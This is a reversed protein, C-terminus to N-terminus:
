GGSGPREWLVAGRGDPLRFRAIPRFRLRRAAREVNARTPKLFSNPLPDATLLFDSGRARLWTGYAPVVDQGAGPLLWDIRMLRRNALVAALELRTNNLFGDGTVVALRPDREGRAAARAAVLRVIRDALPPWAKASAPLRAPPVGVRDGHEAVEVYLPDRGDLVTVEGLLPLHARVPASLSHSVGNKVLVNLVCVAALLAALGIRLGGPRVRAAAGAALALLSPIWPLAFATGKNTTSTLVLYGGLVLCSPLVWDSGLAARVWALRTGSARRHLLAVAAAAGAVLCLVAAAALPLGLYDTVLTAEKTWYGLTAVGHETGFRTASEGYGAGTLYGTVTSWNPAWWLAAVVVALGGAAVLNRARLARGAPDAVLVVVLGAAIAPVYALTMTRALLALGILAGGALAWRVDRLRGSRLLAWVAATLLAAAPVSFHFMRAYDTVVPATGVCIAALAAWGPPALRRALGYSALMLGVFWPIAVLQAVDISRGFVALLPVASLPVLPPQTGYTSIAARAFAGPGDGFADFDHLASVAYGAEDWDTVYGWRFRALWVVHLAALALAAVGVAVLAPAARQLRGSM